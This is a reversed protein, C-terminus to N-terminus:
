SHSGRRRAITPERFRARGDVDTFLQVQTFSAM